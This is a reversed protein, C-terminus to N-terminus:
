CHCIAAPPRNPARRIRGRENGSVEIANEPNTYVSAVVIMHIEKLFDVKAVAPFNM